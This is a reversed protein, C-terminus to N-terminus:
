MSPLRGLCSCWDLPFLWDARSWGLYSWENNLEYDDELRFSRFCWCDLDHWTRSWTARRCSCRAPSSSSPGRSAETPPWSQGAAVDCAALHHRHVSDASSPLHPGPSSLVRNTQNALASYPWAPAYDPLIHSKNTLLFSSNKKYSM